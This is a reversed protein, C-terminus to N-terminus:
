VCYELPVVEATREREITTSIAARKSFYELFRQTPPVIAKPPATAEPPATSTVSTPPVIFTPPMVAEPLATSEVPTTSSAARIVDDADAYAEAQLAKTLPCQEVHNEFQLGIEM